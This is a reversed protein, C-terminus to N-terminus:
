AEGAKRVAEAIADLDSEYEDRTIYDVPPPAETEPAPEVEPPVEEEIELPPTDVV